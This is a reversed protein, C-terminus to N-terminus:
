YGEDVLETVMNRRDERKVADMEDGAGLSYDDALLSFARDRERQMKQYWQQLMRHESCLKVLVGCLEEADAKPKKLVDEAQALM